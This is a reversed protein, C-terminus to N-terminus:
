RARIAKISVPRPQAGSTRLCHNGRELGPMCNRMTTPSISLQSMASAPESECTRFTRKIKIGTAGSASASGLCLRTLMARFERRREVLAAITGAGFDVASTPGLYLESNRAYMAFKQFGSLARVRASLKSLHM